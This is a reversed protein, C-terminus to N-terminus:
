RAGDTLTKEPDEEYDAVMALIEARHKDNEYEFDTSRTGTQTQQASQLVFLTLLTALISLKFSTM